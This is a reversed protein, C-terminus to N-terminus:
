DYEVVEMNKIEGREIMERYLYESILKFGEQTAVHPKSAILYITM